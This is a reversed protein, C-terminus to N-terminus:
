VVAIVGRYHRWPPQKTMVWHWTACILWDSFWFEYLTHFKFLLYLKNCSHCAINWGPARRNRKLGKPNLQINVTMVPDQKIKNLLINVMIVGCIFEVLWWKPSQLLSPVLLVLFRSPSILRPNSFWCSVTSWRGAGGEAKIRM